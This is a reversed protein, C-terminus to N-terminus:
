WGRGQWCQRASSMDDEWSVPLMGPVVMIDEQPKQKGHFDHFDSERPAHQFASYLSDWSDATLAKRLDGSSQQEFPQQPLSHPVTVGLLKRLKSVERMPYKLLDEHTSKLM